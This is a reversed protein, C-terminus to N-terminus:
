PGCAFRVADPGQCIATKEDPTVCVGLFDCCSPYLCLFGPTTCPQDDAGCGCPERGPVSCLGGPSPISSMFGFPCGEICVSRSPCQDSQSPTCHALPTGADVAGSERSGDNMGADSPMGDSGGSAVVGGTGLSADGSTSSGGAGIAGGAQASADTNGSGGGGRSADDFQRNTATSTGGCGVLVVSALPTLLHLTRM